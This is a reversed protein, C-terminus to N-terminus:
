PWSPPVKREGLFFVFIVISSLSLSTERRRVDRENLFDMFFRRFLGGKNIKWGDLIFLFPSFSPRACTCSLCTAAPLGENSSHKFFPSPFDTAHRPSKDIVTYVHARTYTADKQYVCVCMCARFPPRTRLAFPNSIYRTTRSEELPLLLSPPFFSLDARWTVGAGRDEM